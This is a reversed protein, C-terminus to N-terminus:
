STKIDRAKMMLADVFAQDKGIAQAAALLLPDTREIEKARRWISQVRAPQAAIFANVEDLLGEDDLALEFNMAPVSEPPQLKAAALQAKRAAIIEKLTPM